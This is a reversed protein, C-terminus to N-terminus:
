GCLGIGIGIHIHAVVCRLNLCSSSSYFLGHLLKGDYVVVVVVAAADVVGLSLMPFTCVLRITRFTQESERDSASDTRVKISSAWLTAIVYM